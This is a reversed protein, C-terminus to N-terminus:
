GWPGRFRKSTDMRFNGMLTFNESKGVKLRGQKQGRRFQEVHRASAAILSRVQPESLHALSRQDGKTLRSLQTSPAPPINPTPSLQTQPHPLATLNAATAELERETSSQRPAKSSSAASASAGQPRSGGRSKQSRVIKGSSLRLSEEVITYEVPPLDYFEEAVDPTIEFRCHGKALM